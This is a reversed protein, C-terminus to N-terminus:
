LQRAMFAEFSDGFLRGVEAQVQAQDFAWGARQLEIFKAVLVDAIVRRSHTWKYLLQELVRADSHQATFATSLLEVRLRTVEDIISPNNCYWWCGYVHIQRGFKNALVTLQHQNDRSLVTVLIKVDRHRRCLASLCDLDAVEVGDGGGCPDLDPNLGRCAGIKIAFPLGMERAVPVLVRDILESGLDPGAPPDDDKAAVLKEEPLAVYRFRDPTSAMFYIADTKTAWSRLFARAGEITTPFGQKALTASITDWDGKLFPDVRVAAKFRKSWAKARSEDEWQAVEADEFPVNTMVCYRVGAQRFVNEAYEDPDQAEFWARIASLDRRQLEDELGLVRLTTVVGQCAESLPLRRCFLEDWILTAQERKDLAFFSDSSPPEDATVFFESVLYHYTLLADIGWSMLPGHSPPFLHTHVDVVEVEKVAERVWAEVRDETAM